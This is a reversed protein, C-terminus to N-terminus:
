FVAAVIVGDSPRTALVTYLKVLTRGAAVSRKPLGM